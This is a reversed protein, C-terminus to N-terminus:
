QESHATDRTILNETISRMTTDELYKTMDGQWGCFCTALTHEPNWIVTHDSFKNM